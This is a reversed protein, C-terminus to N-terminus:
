PRFPVKGSTCSASCAHTLLDLHKGFHVGPYFHSSLGMYKDILIHAQRGTLMTDPRTMLAPNIGSERLIQDTDIHEERLMDIMRHMYIVPIFPLDDM